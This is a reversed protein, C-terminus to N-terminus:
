LKGDIMIMTMISYGAVDAFTDRIKEDEVKADEDKKSLNEIRALKDDLRVLVGYVGHKELNASGYDHHKKKLMEELSAMVDHLHEEFTPEDKYYQEVDHVGQPINHTM